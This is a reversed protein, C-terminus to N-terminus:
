HTSVCDAFTDPVGDSDGVKGGLILGMVLWDTDM